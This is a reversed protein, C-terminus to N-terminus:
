RRNLYGMKNRNSKQDTQPSLLKAALMLHNRLKDEIKGSTISIKM